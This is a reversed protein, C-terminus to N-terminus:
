ISKSMELRPSNYSKALAKLVIASLSLSVMTDFISSSFLNNDSFRRFFLQVLRDFRKFIGVFVQLLEGINGGM